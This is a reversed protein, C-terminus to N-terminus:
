PRSMLLPRDREPIRAWNGDDRRAFRISGGGTSSHVLVNGGTIEWSAPAFRTLPADCDAGLDIVYGGQPAPLDTFTWRCAPAGAERILVWEGLMEEPTADASELAAPPGLFYVGDGERLAEFSGGTGATFEALIRGDSGLLRIADMTEPLWAAVQASFAIAACAARDLEVALGPGSPQTTLTIDCRREGDASTLRLAGALREASARQESTLAGSGPSQQRQAVTPNTVPAAMAGIFPLAVLSLSMLTTLAFRASM